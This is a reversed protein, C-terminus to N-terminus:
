VQYCDIRNNMIQCVNTLNKAQQKADMASNTTSEIQSQVQDICAKVKDVALTQDDAQSAVQLNAINIKEIFQQTSDLKQVVTQTNVVAQLAIEGQNKMAKSVEQASARLKELIASIEHTSEVTSKALLRVESAVVSFGRGSEGARAAEIAANLALLNTQESITSIVTLVKEINKTNINLNEIVQEGHQAERSLQDINTQLIGVRTVSESVASTGLEAFQSGQSVEERVKAFSELLSNVSEVATSAQDRQLLSDQELQQSRENIHDSTREVNLTENKIESIISILFGRLKECNLALSNLETFYITSNLKHSFDGSCLEELYNAVIAIARMSQRQAVWVMGGIGLLLFLLVALLIFVTKNVQARMQDIFVKSKTAEEVLGQITETVELKAGTGLAILKATNEREYLYRTSLSTLENILEEGLDMEQAETPQKSTDIGMMLSFDDEEEEVLVGLLPLRKLRGVNDSIEESLAQINALGQESPIRFYKDRHIIRQAVLGTIVQLEDALAQARARNEESRADIIYDNLSEIVKLTEMENQTILKQIDGALKGASLLRVQMNSQLQEIAPQMAHGIPDPMRSLAQPIDENIYVKAADLDTLNGTSLYNEILTHYKISIGEVLQFYAQNLVFSKHLQQVGWYVSGGMGIIAFLLLSSTIRNLIALRM